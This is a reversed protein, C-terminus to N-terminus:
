MPRARLAAAPHDSDDDDGGSVTVDLALPPPVRGGCRALQLRQLEHFARYYSHEISAEYRTLTALLSVDWDKFLRREVRAVRRRRWLDRIMVAVLIREHADQPKLDARIAKALTKLDEQDEGALLTERSLLGHKLANQGVRAKGKPSKPGTSRLANQQNAEIKRESTMRM